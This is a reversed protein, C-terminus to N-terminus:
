DSQIRIEELSIGLSSLYPEVEASLYEGCFKHFPYQRKEILMVELGAKRLHIAATWGGLGGGIVIVDADEM